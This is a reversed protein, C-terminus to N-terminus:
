MHGAISVGSHTTTAVGLQMPVAPQAATNSGLQRTEVTPTSLSHVLFRLRMRMPNHLSTVAREVEDKLLDAGLHRYKLHYRYSQTLCFSACMCVYMCVCMCVYMCVYVCVYMCVYMCVYVYMSVSTDTYACM